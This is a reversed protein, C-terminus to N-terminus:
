GGNVGALNFKTFYMDWGSGDRLFLCKEVIFFLPSLVLNCLCIRLNRETVGTM